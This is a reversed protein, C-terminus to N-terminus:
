RALGTGQRRGPFEASLAPDRRRRRDAQRCGTSAAVPTAARALRLIRGNFWDPFGDIRFDREALARGALGAAGRAARDEIFAVLDDAVRAPDPGTSTRGIGHRAIFRALPTDPSAVAFLPVGACAFEALRSPLSYRLYDSSAQPEHNLALLGLDAQALKGLLQQGGFFGRWVFDVGPDFGGDLLAQVRAPSVYWEVPGLRPLRTRARSWVERIFDVVKPNYFNGVM